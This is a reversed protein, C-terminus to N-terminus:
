RRACLEAVRREVTRAVVAVRRDHALEESVAGRGIRGIVRAVRRDHLHANRARRPRACAADTVYLSRSARAFSRCVREGTAVEAPVVVVFSAIHTHTHTHAHTYMHICTHTHSTVSGRRRGAGPPPSAKEARACAARLPYVSHTCASRAVFRMERLSPLRCPRVASCQAAYTRAATGM